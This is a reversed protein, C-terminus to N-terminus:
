KKVVILKDSSRTIGTYLYKQHEEKDFPFNEEYLLVKEWESGQAKWCTIAYAYSFDFPPAILIKKAKRMRYEQEGTLAKKGTTLALYDIPIQNYVEGDDTIMDVDLINLCREPYLYSPLVITKPEIRSITGISGNTLPDGNGSFFEWHNTLGIIRDGVEPEQGRGDFQRMAQNIDNRTKNMACLIQDPWKLMGPSVENRSVIKVQAGAAEFSSLPRGERVHMSLRIIESEQAQRMIEDLFIHPHDLVHNNQNPDIPPLQGPDGLALIHVRHTLLLDWMDKPLMSVEDVVILKYEDDLVDKPEHVYNGNPLPKSHYLLKHATVPNPCGKQKLVNAAKGTFACYAIYKPDLNLAAIIFTVLTSKGAGAFGSICTYPEKDNFRSVAIKLGQEQKATLIM